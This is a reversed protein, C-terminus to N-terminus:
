CPKTRVQAAVLILAVGVQTPLAAAGHVQVAAVATGAQLDRAAATAIGHAQNAPVATTGAQAAAQHM